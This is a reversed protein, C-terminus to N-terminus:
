LNDRITTGGTAEELEKLLAHPVRGDIIRAVEGCSLAKLCAHLKPIMGGSVLGTHIYAQAEAISMTSKLKGWGDIVGPVDTLFIIREAGIAAAIEGAVLDANINLLCPGENASNLGVTAIVPIYGAELLSTVLNLDVKEVVGVHGLEKNKVTSKIFTGDAGSIGVARGGRRNIEGVIQKNVLGALVATVVELSADDTVREGDISNTKIGQKKLWDTIIKGGGHVVVVSRGQKQLHALDEVTTDDSGLTSGGIKVVLIKELRNTM